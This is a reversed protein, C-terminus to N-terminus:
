STTSSNISSSESSTLYIKIGLPVANPILASMTSLPSFLKLRFKQKNKNLIKESRRGAGNKPSIMAPSEGQAATTTFCTAIDNTYEEDTDSDYGTFPLLSLHLENSFM